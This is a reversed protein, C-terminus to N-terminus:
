LAAEDDMEAEAGEEEEQGENRKAPSPGTSSVIDSIRGKKDRNRKLTKARAQENENLALSMDEFFSVFTKFLVDPTTEADEGVYQLLEAYKHEAEQVKHSLDLVVKRARAHFSEIAVHFQEEEDNFRASDQSHDQRLSKTFKLENEVEKLGMALSKLGAKIQSMVVSAAGRVEDTEAVVFNLV